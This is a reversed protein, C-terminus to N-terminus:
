KDDSLIKLFKWNGDKKVEVLVSIKRTSHLCHHANTHEESVEEDLPIQNKGAHQINIWQELERGTDGCPFPINVEAVFQNEKM